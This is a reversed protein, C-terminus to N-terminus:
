AQKLLLEKVLDLIILALTKWPLAKFDAAPANAGKAMLGSLQEAAWKRADPSSGFSPDTTPEPHPNHDVIWLGLGWGALTYGCHVTCKVDNVTGGLADVIVGLCTHPFTTPLPICDPCDHLYAQPDNNNAQKAM